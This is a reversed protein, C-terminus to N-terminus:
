IIFLSINAVKELNFKMMGEKINDMKFTVANLNYPDLEIAITLFTEIEIYSMLGLTRPSQPVLHSLYSTVSHLPVLHSLM